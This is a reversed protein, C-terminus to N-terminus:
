PLIKHLAVLKNAFGAHRGGCGQATGTSGSTYIVYAPPASRPCHEAGVHAAPRDDALRCRPARDLATRPCGISCHRTRVLVPAQADELMLGSARASYRSRLASLRRGGQPHRLGILMAPSREVGLGVVTEPGVGLDRLIRWSIPARM